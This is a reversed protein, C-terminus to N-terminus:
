RFPVVANNKLVCVASQILITSTGVYAADPGEFSCVIEKTPPKDEYSCLYIHTM